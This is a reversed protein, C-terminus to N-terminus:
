ASADAGLINWVDAVPKDTVIGHYDPHPTAVILVDAQELVEDLPVLSPDTTVYPDTMLVQRAKFSLIRKLKYALSSRIDDSGAKFSAGLIGV